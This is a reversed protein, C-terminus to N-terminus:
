GGSRDLSKNPLPGGSDSRKECDMAYDADGLGGM